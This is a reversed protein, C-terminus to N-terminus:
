RQASSQGNSHNKELAQSMQM